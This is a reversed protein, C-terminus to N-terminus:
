FEKVARARSKATIETDVGGPFVKSVIYYRGPRGKTSTWIDNSFLFEANSYNKAIITNIKDKNNLMIKAEELSPLRWSNYGEYADCVEEAKNLNYTRSDGGVNKKSCILGHRGSKDVYFVIGNNVIDGIQINWTVNGSLSIKGTKGDKKVKAQYNKDFDFADDYIIPIILKGKTNVYGYKNDKKVLAMKQKYKYIKDYEIPVLIEGTKDILGFKSKLKVKATGFENYDFADNYKTQVVLKGSEDIFGYMNNNFVVAMSKVHGYIKDYEIPTVVRGSKDILGFKEGLKVKAFGNDKFDFADDYKAAIVTKGTKDVYGYKNSKFAVCLGNVEKYIKDWQAHLQNINSSVIMLFLVLLRLM